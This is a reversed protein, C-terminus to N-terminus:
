IERHSFCIYVARSVIFLLIVLPIGVTPPVKRALIEPFPRQRQQEQCAETMQKADVPPDSKPSEEILPQPCRTLMANGVNELINGEVIGGGVAAILGGTLRQGNAVDIMKNNAVSSRDDAYLLPRQVSLTSHYEQTHTFITFPEDKM